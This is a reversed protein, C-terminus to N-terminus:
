LQEFDTVTMGSETLSDNLIGSLVEKAKRMYAMVPEMRHNLEEMDLCAIDNEPDAAENYTDILETIIKQISYLEKGEKHSLIFFRTHDNAQMIYTKKM